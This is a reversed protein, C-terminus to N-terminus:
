RGARRWGGSAELLLPEAEALQKEGALHAGLLSEAFFRQWTEPRTKRDALVL